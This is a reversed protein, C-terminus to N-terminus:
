FLCMLFTFEQLNRQGELLVASVDGSSNWCRWPHPPRSSPPLTLSFPSPGAPQRTSAPVGLDVEGPGVDRSDRQTREGGRRRNEPVHGRYAERSRTGSSGSVRSQLSGRHPVKKRPSPSNKPLALGWLATSHRGKLDATRTAGQECSDPIPSPCFPRKM